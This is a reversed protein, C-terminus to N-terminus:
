KPTEIREGVTGFVRDWVRTQKGYNKGSRGFRHHLDHDEVALEMGFPQLVPGLIPHQWVARIGSHGLAEVYLLYIIAYHFEPFSLAPAVVHALIPIVLIELCEQVGDALISLVPTPHKTAHHQRHIWWLSDFEHTSRHYLYFWYDLSIQWLGIKVPTWLSLGEFPNAMDGRWRALFPQVSRLFMYIFISRGVHNVHADDVIDRGRNQEDFVGYEEMKAHLRRILFVAFIILSFHYTALAPAWHMLHDPYFTNWLLHIGPAITGTSIIFVNEWFVSQVPIPGRKEHEHRKRYLDDSCLDVAAIGEWLTMEQRSKLHWTTKPRVGYVKDYAKGNADKAIAGEGAGNPASPSPEDCASDPAISPGEDQTAAHVSQGNVGTPLISPAVDAASM